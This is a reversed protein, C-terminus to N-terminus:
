KNAIKYSSDFGNKVYNDDIKGSCEKQIIMSSYFDTHLLNRITKYFKNLSIYNKGDLYIVDSLLISCEEWNINYEVNKMLCLKILDDWVKAKKEKSAELIKVYEPSIAIRHNLALLDVDKPKNAQFARGRPIKIGLEDKVFGKPYHFLFKFELNSNTLERELEGIELIYRRILLKLKPERRKIPKKAMHKNNIKYNRKYFEKYKSIYLM